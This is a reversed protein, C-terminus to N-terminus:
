RIVPRWFDEMTRKRQHPGDTAMIPVNHNDERQEAMTAAEAAIVKKLNRLTREIEINLPLLEAEPGKHM